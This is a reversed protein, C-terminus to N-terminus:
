TFIHHLLLQDEQLYVLYLLFETINNILRKALWGNKKFSKIALDISKKLIGVQLFLLM